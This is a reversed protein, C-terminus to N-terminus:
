SAISGNSQLGWKTCWCEHSFRTEECVWLRWQGQVYWADVVFLKWPETSTMKPNWICMHSWPFFCCHFLCLYDLLHALWRCTSLLWRLEMCGALSPITTQLILVLLKPSYELYIRRHSGEFIHGSSSWDIWWRYSIVILLNNLYM